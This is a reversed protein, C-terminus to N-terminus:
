HFSFSTVCTFCTAGAPVCSETFALKFGLSSFKFPVVQANFLIFDVVRVILMSPVKEIM